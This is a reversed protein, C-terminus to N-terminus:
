NVIWLVKRGSYRKRLEDIHRRVDENKFADNFGEVNIGIPCAVVRTLHGHDEVGHPTGELGLVRSCCSIFHRLYDYTHFGLLDAKLVGRLVEERFPLTRYIESSPFPTHLFWGVKMKPKKEKLLAPCLMLHYDHLWVIDRNGTRM